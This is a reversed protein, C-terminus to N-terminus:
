ARWQQGEERMEGGLGVGTVTEVPIMIAPVYM